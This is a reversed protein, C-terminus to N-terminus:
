IVVYLNTREDVMKARRKCLPSSIKQVKLNGQVAMWGQVYPFYYYFNVRDMKNKFRAEGRELLMVFKRM